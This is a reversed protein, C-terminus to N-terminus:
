REDGYTFYDPLDALLPLARDKDSVVAGEEGIPWDIALAPDNWLLGRDFAPDWYDSVSYTVASNPELTTYGHAFGEPIFVQQQSAAELIVAVHRGFNPSGHRLDIAVDFIKGHAVGVLKATARPPSQFHLGRVTGQHNTIVFNAQVFTRDIAAASAFESARYTEWFTGRHDSHPVPTILLVEPIALRDFKLGV